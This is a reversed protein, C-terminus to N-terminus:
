QSGGQGELADLRRQLEDHEQQIIQLQLADNSYQALKELIGVRTAIPQRTDMAVKYLEPLAKAGLAISVTQWNDFIQKRNM